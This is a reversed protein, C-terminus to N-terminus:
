QRHIQVRRIYGDFYTVKTKRDLNDFDTTVTYNDEVNTVTHIRNFSDYGFRTVASYGNFVPSAISELYGAPATRGYTYTTQEDMGNRVIKRTLIQGQPTYTYTTPQGAADKETVPLHLPQNLPIM